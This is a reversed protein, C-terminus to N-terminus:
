LVSEVIQLLKSCRFHVFQCIHFIFTYSTSIVSQLGVLFYLPLQLPYLVLNKLNINFYYFTQEVKENNFLPVHFSFSQLQVQTPIISMQCGMMKIIIYSKNCFLAEIMFYFIYWDELKYSNQM